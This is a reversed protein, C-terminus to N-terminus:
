ISCRFIAAWPISTLSTSPRSRPSVRTDKGILRLLFRARASATATRMWPKSWSTHDGQNEEAELHHVGVVRWYFEGDPVEAETITVDYKVAADNIAPSGDPLAVYQDLYQKENLHM